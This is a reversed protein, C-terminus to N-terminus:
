PFAVEVSGVRPRGQPGCGTPAGMLFRVQTNDSALQRLLLGMDSSSTIANVLFGDDTKSCGAPNFLAPSVGDLKVFYAGNNVYRIATIRGEDTVTIGFPVDFSQANATPVILAGFVCLLSILKKLM